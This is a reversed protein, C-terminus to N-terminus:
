EAGESVVCVTHAGPTYLRVARHVLINVVATQQNLHGNVIARGGAYLIREVEGIISGTYRNAYREIVSSVVVCRIKLAIHYGNKIAM